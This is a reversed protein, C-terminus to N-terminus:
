LVTNSLLSRISELRHSITDDLRKGDFDLRVGGLITPDVQNTLEITKGTVSALKEKLRQSQVQTLEMATVATVPLIGNDQNYLGRYAQCCDDFYRIYGKETLIKLFNLVYPHLKGRFSEDLIRCREEKTLSPSSLLRIFDPASAFSQQLVLLQQLVSATLNEELCLSYLAEGYVSGAQTM